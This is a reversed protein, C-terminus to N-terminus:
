NFKRLLYQASEIEAPTLTVFAGTQPEFFRRGNETYCEVIAHHPKGDALNGGPHYWFEGLAPSVARKGIDDHFARRFYAQQVEDIFRSAFWTCTVSNDWGTVGWLAGDNIKARFQHYNWLIWEETIAAYAAKGFVPRNAGLPNPGAIQYTTLVTGTAFQAPEDSRRACSPLLLALALFLITRKM